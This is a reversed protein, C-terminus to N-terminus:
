VSCREHGVHDGAHLEHISHSFVGSSFDEDVLNPSIEPMTACSVTRAQTSVKPRTGGHGSMRYDPFGILRMTAFATSCITM